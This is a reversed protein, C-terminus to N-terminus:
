EHILLIETINQHQLFKNLQNQFFKPYIRINKFILLRDKLTKLNKLTLKPFAQHLGNNNKLMSVYYVKISIHYM